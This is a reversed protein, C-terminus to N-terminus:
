RLKSLRSKAKDASESLPYRSILDELTRRAAAVDGAANQANALILMADPVKLHDPYTVMLKQQAAVANPYDSARFYAEGLWYQANPALEHRPYQRLFGQFAQIAGQADGARQRALAQDYAKGASTGEPASPPAPAPAPSAVPPSAVSPAPVPVPVPTPGAGRSGTVPTSAAGPPPEPVVPAPASGTAHELRRLRNELDAPVTGSGAEIRRLRADLDTVQAAPAAATAAAAMAADVKRLRLDNEAELKRLQVELDAEHKKLRLELDVLQGQLKKREAADDKAGQELRRLRSDLDSYLDGQRKDSKQLRENTQDIRNVTDEFQGRLERVQRDTADLRNLSELLIRNQDSAAGTPKATQTQALVVGNLSFALAVPLVLGVARARVPFARGRNSPARTSSTVAVTRLM